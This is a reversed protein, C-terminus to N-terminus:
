RAYVLTGGDVSLKSVFANFAGALTRQAAAPTIPFDFSTTFGTVYLSGASDLAAANAADINSGGLFTSYILSSGGRQAQGRICECNRAARGTSFRASSLGSFIDDGSYLCQRGCRPCHRRMHRPGTGGVFTSYVLSGGSSDLKSVFCDSLGGRNATQLAGPTAPFASSSTQGAVYTGGSSDVAIAFGFDSKEGGLYTSYILRGAPDLKAVFADEAGLNRTSIAGSTIPFDSSGTVGTVYANGSADVAIGKGSDSGSGGLYVSLAVRHRRANM